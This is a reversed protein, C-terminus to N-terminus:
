GKLDGIISDLSDSVEIGNKIILAKYERAIRARNKDFAKGDFITESRVEQINRAKLFKNKSIHPIATVSCLEQTRSDHYICIGPIGAQTALMNGHMRTGISMDFSSLFEIWAGADFFVRFYQRIFTMFQSRSQFHRHIRPRLYRHLNDIWEDSIEGQGERALSVLRLPSQTVYVGKHQLLFSILRREINKLHEKKPMGATVVLNQPAIHRLKQHIIEGLTPTSNILLSPCGLVATNKIGINALAAATYEGRVGIIHSRESVAKMWRKTDEKLKLEHDLSPAQAGLGVVLCPLDVAEVFKARRAHTHESEPNLSNASPFVLVDCTDRVLDPDSTSSFFFKESAIHNAVAYRFALNGTNNNAKWLAETSMEFSNQFRGPNGIIGVRM